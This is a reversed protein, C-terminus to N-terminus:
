KVQNPFSPVVLKNAESDLKCGTGQVSCLIYAAEGQGAIVNVRNAQGSVYMDGDSDIGSVSGGKYTGDNSALFQKLSQNSGTQYDLVDLVVVENASVWGYTSAEIEPLQAELASELEAKLTDQNGGTSPLNASANIIISDIAPRNRNIKSAYDGLNLLKHATLSVKVTGAYQINGTKGKVEMNHFSTKEVNKCSVLLTSLFLISAFTKPTIKM